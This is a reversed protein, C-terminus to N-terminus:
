VKRRRRAVFLMGLSVGAWVVFSGPEPTPNVTPTTVLLSSYTYVINGSGNPRERWGVDNGLSALTVSGVTATQGTNFYSSTTLDYISVTVTGATTNVTASIQYSDGPRTIAGLDLLFPPTAGLNGEDGLLQAGTEQLVVFHGYYDGANEELLLGGNTNDGTIVLGPQNQGNGPSNIVGSVTYNTLGSTYATNTLLDSSNFGGSTTSYTLENASPVSYSGGGDGAATYNSLSASSPYNDSFVVAGHATQGVAGCAVAVGAFVWIFSTKM